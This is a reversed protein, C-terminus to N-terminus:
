YDIRSLLRDLATGYYVDPPIHQYHATVWKRSATDLQEQASQFLPISTAHEKRIASPDNDDVDIVLFRMRVSDVRQMEAMRVSVSVSGPLVYATENGAFITEPISVVGLIENARTMVPLISQRISM